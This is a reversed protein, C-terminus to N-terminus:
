ILSKNIFKIFNDIANEKDIINLKNYFTGIDAGRYVYIDEEITQKSILNNIEEYINIDNHFHVEYIQDAFKSPTGKPQGTLGSMYSTKIEMIKHKHFNKKDDLRIFYYDYDFDNRPSGTIDEEHVIEIVQGYLVYHKIAMLIDNRKSFTAFNYISRQNKVFEIINQTSQM